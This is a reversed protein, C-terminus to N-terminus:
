TLWATLDRNTLVALKEIDNRYYDVLYKRDQPALKPKTGLRFDLQKVYSRLRRPVLKIAREGFGCKALLYRIDAAPRDRHRKSADLELCARVCRPVRVPRGVSAHTEGVGGRVLVYARRKASVSRSIAESAPLLPWVGSVPICPGERPYNRSDVARCTRSVLIKYKRSGSDHLYHSFAREAPDRLIMIIKTLPLRSRISSPASVSWLYCVSAEGVAREAQVNRFLLQYDDWETILAPPPAGPRRELLHSRLENTEAM